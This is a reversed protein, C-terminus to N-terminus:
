FVAYGDYVINEYVFCNSNTPLLLTLWHISKCNHEAGQFLGM